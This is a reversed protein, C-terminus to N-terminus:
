RMGSEALVKNFSKVSGDPFCIHPGNKHVSPREILWPQTAWRTAIGPTPPFLTPIYHVRPREEPPAGQAALASNFAPCQWNKERIDYPKLVQLWFDEWPKEENPSPGQPWVNQHDQLYAHLGVTIGRMNAICASEQARAIMHSASPAVLVILITVILVAAIVELLSFAQQAINVTKFVV